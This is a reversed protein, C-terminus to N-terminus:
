MFDKGATSWLFTGKVVVWTFVPFFPRKRMVVTGPVTKRIVRELEKYRLSNSV